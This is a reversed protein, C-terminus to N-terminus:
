DEDLKARNQETSIMSKMEELIASRNVYNLDRAIATFGIVLPRLIEKGFKVDDETETKLVDDFPLDYVVDDPQNLVSREISITIKDKKNTALSRAIVIVISFFITILVALILNGSTFAIYLFFTISIIVSDAYKRQTLFFNRKLSPQRQRLCQLCHKDRLKKKFSIGNYGGRIKKKSSISM